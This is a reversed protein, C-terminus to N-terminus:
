FVALCAPRLTALLGGGGSMGGEGSAAKGQSAANEGVVMLQGRRQNFIIRYLHKNM